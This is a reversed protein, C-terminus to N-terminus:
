FGQYLIRNPDLSLKKINQETVTRQYNFAEEYVQCVKLYKNELARKHSKFIKIKGAYIENMIWDHKESCDHSCFYLMNDDSNVQSYYKKGCHNCTVRAGPRTNFGLLRAIVSTM